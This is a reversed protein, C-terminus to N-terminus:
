EDDDGGDNGKRSDTLERRLRNREKVTLPRKREREAKAVAAEHAADNRGYARRMRPMGPSPEDDGEDDDAPAELLRKLLADPVRLGRERLGRALELDTLPM